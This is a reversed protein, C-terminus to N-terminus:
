VIIPSRTGFRRRGWDRRELTVLGHLLHLQEITIEDKVTRNWGLKQIHYRM